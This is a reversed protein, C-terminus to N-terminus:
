KEKSARSDDRGNRRAAAPCRLYGQIEIKGLGLLSKLLFNLLPQGVVV